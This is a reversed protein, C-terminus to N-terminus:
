VNQDMLVNRSAPHWKQLDLLVGLRSTSLTGVLGYIEGCLGDEVTVSGKGEAKGGTKLAGEM